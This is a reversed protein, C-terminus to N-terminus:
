LKPGVQSDFKTSPIKRTFVSGIQILSHSFWNAL